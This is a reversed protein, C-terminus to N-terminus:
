QYGLLRSKECPAGNELWQDNEEPNYWLIMRIARVNVAATQFLQRAQRDCSVISKDSCLAAEILHFDKIIADLMSKTKATETVKKQLEAYTTSVYRIRKKAVM